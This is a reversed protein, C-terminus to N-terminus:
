QHVKESIKLPALQMYRPLLIITIERGYGWFWDEWMM